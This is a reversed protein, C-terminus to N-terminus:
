GAVTTITGAYTAATTVSKNVELLAGCADDFVRELGFPGSILDTPVLINALPCPIWCLPHGITVCASGSAVAATIQIGDLEKVGTDGSALPCFWIGANMDLRNAIASAVGNAATSASNGNQDTYSMISWNHATAALATITEMFMFNGDASDAQGSTTNQYRTPVGTVAEASTITMNKLCSQLRDYLLLQNGAVNTNIHAAVLHQTDPSTPNNFVIAGTSGANYVTGATSGSPAAGAVPNGSAFWLTNTVSVVGTSGVKQIVATRKKGAAAESILDSLSAFGTAFSPSMEQKRVMRKWNRMFGAERRKLADYMRDYITAHAGGEIHGRFDGHKDIFLKGPVNQIQIPPGYWDKMNEQLMAVEHAGLWNELRQAHTSLLM